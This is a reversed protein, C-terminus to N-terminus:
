SQTTKEQVSMALFRDPSVENLQLWYMILANMEWREMKSIAEDTLGEVSSLLRKTWLVTTNIDGKADLSDREFAMDLKWRAYKMRYKKETRGRVAPIIIEISDEESM